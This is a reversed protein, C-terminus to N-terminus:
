TQIELEELAKSINGDFYKTIGQLLKKDKQWEESKSNILVYKINCISYGYRKQKITPKRSNYKTKIEVDKQEKVCPLDIKLYSLGQLFSDALDDKKKHKQFYDVWQTEKIISTTITVGQKKRERYNSKGKLNMNSYNRLKYKASYSVIKINKMTFYMKIMGELVRMKLNRNPQKEVICENTEEFYLDLVKILSEALKEVSLEHVCWKKITGNTELLCIGLNKQGVDISLLM